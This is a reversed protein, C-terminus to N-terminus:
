GGGEVLGPPRLPPSAEAPHPHTVRMPSPSAWGGGGL